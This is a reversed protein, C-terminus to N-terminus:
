QISSCLMTTSDDKLTLALGQGYEEMTRPMSSLIGEGPYLYPVATLLPISRTLNVTGYNATPIDEPWPREKHGTHSSIAKRLMQMLWIRYHAMGQRLCGDDQPLLAELITKLGVFAWDIQGLMRILLIEMCWSWSCTTISHHALRVILCKQLCTSTQCVLRM